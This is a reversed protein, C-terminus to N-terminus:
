SALYAAIDEIGPTARRHQAEVAAKIARLNIEAQTTV